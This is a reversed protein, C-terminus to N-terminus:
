KPTRWDAKKKMAYEMSIKNMSKLLKEYKKQMLDYHSVEMTYGSELANRTRRNKNYMYANTVHSRKMALLDKSTKVFKAEYERIKKRVEAKNQVKYKKKGRANLTGNENLYRRVGWKMGKVGYHALYSNQEPM